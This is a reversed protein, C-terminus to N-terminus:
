ALYTDIASVRISVGDEELGAVSESVEEVSVDTVGGIQMIYVPQDESGAVDSELDIINVGAELLKTTVDSVIGARDAGSVTIQINPILHRHLHAEIEDIHMCLELSELTAAMAEEIDSASNDGGVMMMVTFHDGLRIMSTEGLNMGLDFLARTVAAVIGPKDTGVLTLMYWKNM